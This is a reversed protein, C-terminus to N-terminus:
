PRLALVAVSKPPMTLRLRDGQRQASFPRPKVNDPAAFSNVADVRDATLLQGDASRIAKGSVDLVLDAPKDPDVNTM